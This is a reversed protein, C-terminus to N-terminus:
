ELFVCELSWNIEKFLSVKLNYDKSYLRDSVSFVLFSSELGILSLEANFTLLVDYETVDELFLVEMFVPDLSRSLYVLSVGRM